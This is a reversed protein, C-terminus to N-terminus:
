TAGNATFYLDGDRRVQGLRELSGMLSEFQNLSAGQAMLGAYLAGAPAGHEGSERVADKVASVIL